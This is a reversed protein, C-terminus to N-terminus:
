KRLLFMLYAIKKATFTKGELIGVHGLSFGSKVNFSMKRVQEQKVRINFLKAM